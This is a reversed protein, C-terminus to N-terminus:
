AFVVGRRELHVRVDDLFSRLESCRRLLDTPVGEVSFEKESTRGAVIIRLALKPSRELGTPAFSVTCRHPAFARRAVDQIQQDTLPVDHLPDLRPPARRQTRTTTMPAESSAFQVLNGSCAQGTTVVQLATVDDSASSM